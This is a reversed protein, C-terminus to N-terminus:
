SFYFAVVAAAVVGTGYLIKNREKRCYHWRNWREDRRAVIAWYQWYGIWGLWVLTLLIVIGMTM